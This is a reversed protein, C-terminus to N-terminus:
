GELSLSGAAPPDEILVQPDSPLQGSNDARAKQVKDVLVAWTERQMRLIKLADDLAQIDKRINADVLKSFVFAYLASMQQCLEPAREHRLGSEMETVIRQVRTLLNHSEEIAGKELADRAQLSFRIAGDYLMLQLQEPSATMIANRLYENATTTPM